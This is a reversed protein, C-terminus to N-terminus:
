PALYPYSYEEYPWIFIVGYYAVCLRLAVHVIYTWSLPKIRLLLGNQLVSIEKM